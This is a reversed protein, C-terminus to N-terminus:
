PAGLRLSAAVAFPVLAACGLSVAALLLSPGAPWAGAMDPQAARIGFLLVPVCWPLVLLALLLTATRAGLTLAAGLAALTCLAPTGLTLSAALMAWQRADLDYFLALVPTAALLPVAVTVWHAALVGAVAFTAGGPALLLQDLMGSAADDSFLRASGLAAALLAAVWAVPAALAPRQVADPALAVPMLATVLLFFGLAAVAEVPRRAALRVDRAFLATGAGIVAGNHHSRADPAADIRYALM